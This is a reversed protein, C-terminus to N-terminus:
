LLIAYINLKSGKQLELSLFRDKSLNASSFYFEMQKLITQYLLKKRSRKKNESGATVEIENEM